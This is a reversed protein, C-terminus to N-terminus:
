SHQVLLLSNLSVALETIWKVLVEVKAPNSVVRGDTSVMVHLHCSSTRALWLYSNEILKRLQTEKIVPETGPPFVLDLSNDFVLELKERTSQLRIRPLTITTPRFSSM